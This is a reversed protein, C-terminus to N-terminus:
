AASYGERRLLARALEANDAGSVLIRNRVVMRPEHDVLRGEAAADGHEHSRREVVEGLRDTRLCDAGSVDRGAAVRRSWASM